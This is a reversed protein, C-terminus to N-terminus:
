RRRVARATTRVTGAALRSRAGRSGPCCRPRRGRSRADPPHRAALRTAPHQGAARRHLPATPPRLADGRDASEVIRGSYMVNVTDCLGAVVGLDHTIMLLAADTDAVLRSSSRSCRPRSPSTSRPPRSTPSSCARSAPWRWRSSCGSGCAAPSSTPTSGWGGARTPSAWRPCCTAPAAGPTRRASTSTGNSSRARGPGRHDGRPQAVDDPGPLGDRDGQGAPQRPQRPSLELLNRGGYM